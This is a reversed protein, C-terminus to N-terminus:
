DHLMLQWYGVDIRRDFKYGVENLHGVKKFGLREHLRVSGDNPLAIVGIASHLNTDRLKEILSQYLRAGIGVGKKEVDLYVTTEVSFRYACRRRFRGAYAFGYIQGDAEFVLWPLEEDVVECIRNRMEDPSVTNEEFTIITDTVYHNYIRAIEAADNPTVNRIGLKTVWSIPWNQRV